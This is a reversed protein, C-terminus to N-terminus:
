FPYKKQSFMFKALQTKLAITDTDLNIARDLPNLIEKIRKPVSGKFITNICQPILYRITLLSESVCIKAIIFSMESTSSERSGQQARCIVSESVYINTFM